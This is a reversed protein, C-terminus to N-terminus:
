DSAVTLRDIRGHKDLLRDAVSIDVFAAGEPVNEDIRFSMDTNGRLREATESSL